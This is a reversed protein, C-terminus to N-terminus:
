LAKMYDKFTTEIDYRIFIETPRARKALVKLDEDQNPCICLVKSDCIAAVNILQRLVGPEQLAEWNVDAILCRNPKKLEKKIRDMNNTRIVQFKLETILAGLKKSLLFDTSAVIVLPKQEGESM